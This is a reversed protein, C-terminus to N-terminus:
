RLYQLLAFSLIVAPTSARKPGPDSFRRLANLSAFLAENICFQQDFFSGSASKLQRGKWSAKMRM